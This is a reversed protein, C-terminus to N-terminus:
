EQPHAQEYLEKGILFFRTEARTSHKDDRSLIRGEDLFAERAQVFSVGHKRRNEVDKLPDWEFNM